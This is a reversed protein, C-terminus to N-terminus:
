HTLAPAAHISVASFLSTLRTTDELYIARELEDLAPDMMVYADHLEMVPAMTVYLIDGSVEPLMVMTRAVMIAAEVQDSVEEELQIPPSPMTMYDETRLLVREITRAVPGGQEIPVKGPAASVCSALVLSLSLLLNKM